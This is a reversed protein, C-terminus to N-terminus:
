AFIMQIRRNAEGVEASDCAAEFQVDRTQYDLSRLGSLVAVGDVRGLRLPLEFGSLKGGKSTIPVVIAVGTSQNFIDASVVLGYHPGDMERGVVPSWNIHVVDGLRPVYGNRAFNDGRKLVDSPKGVPLPPM